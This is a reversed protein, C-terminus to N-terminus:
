FQHILLLSLVHFIEQLGLGLEVSEGRETSVSHPRMPTHETQLPEAQSVNHLICLWTAELDTDIYIGAAIISTILIEMYIKQM